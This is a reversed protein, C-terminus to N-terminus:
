ASVKRMYAVLAIPPLHRLRERTLAEPRTHDSGARLRVVRLAEMVRPVDIGKPCRVGCVLCSACIWPAVSDPDVDLGLQLRRILQSPLTDMWPAMPCSASCSGCQYCRLLPQQSLEEIRRRLTSDAGYPREM